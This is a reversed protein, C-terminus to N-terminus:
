GKYNGKEAQKINSLNTLINQTLQKSAKVKSIYGFRRFLSDRDEPKMKSLVSFLKEQIEVSEGLLEPPDEDQIPEADLPLPLLLEYDQLCQLILEKLKEPTLEM